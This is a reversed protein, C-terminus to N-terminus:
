HTKPPRREVLANLLPVSQHRLVIPVHPVSPLDYITLQPAVAVSFVACSIECAANSPQDQNSETHCNTNDMFVPTAAAANADTKLMMTSGHVAAINAVILYCIAVSRSIWLARM